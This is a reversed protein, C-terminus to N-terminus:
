PHPVVLSNCRGDLVFDDREGGVDPRYDIAAAVTALEGYQGQCPERDGPHQVELEERPGPLHKQLHDFLVRVAYLGETRLRM